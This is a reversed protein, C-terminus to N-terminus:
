ILNRFFLVYIIILVAVAVIFFIDRKTLKLMPKIGLKKEVVSLREEIDIVKKELDAKPVEMSKTEEAM